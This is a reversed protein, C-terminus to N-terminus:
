KEVKSYRKEDEKVLLTQKKRKKLNVNPTAAIKTTRKTVFTLIQRM